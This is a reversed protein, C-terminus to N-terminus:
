VQLKPAQAEGAGEWDSFDRDRADNIVLGANVLRHQELVSRLMSADERVTHGLRGVILCGDLRPQSLLAQGDAVGLLPPGDIIVMAGTGSLEGLLKDLAAGGLADAPSEPIAGVPLAKLGSLGPLISQLLPHVDAGALAQDLGHAGDSGFRRAFSPNHMDAEVLVVPEGTLAFARALGLAVGTRGERPRASMIALVRMEGGAGLFSLSAQLIRYPELAARREAQTRPELDQHGIVALVPLGTLLELERPGRVRRDFGDLVFAIMVGAVLGVLLGLIANRVKKPSAPQSPVEARDVVEAEGSEVVNLTQVRGLVTQLQQRRASGVPLQGVQRRLLAAADAARSRNSEKRLAVFADAFGNALRAAREADPDDVTLTILDAGPEASAVVETRLQAAPEELGLDKRARAAVGPSNALVLATARERDPDVSNRAAPDVIQSLQATLSGILLQSRAQYTPTATLNYALVIALILTAVGLVVTARQSLV